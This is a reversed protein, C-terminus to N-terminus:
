YGWGLRGYEARLVDATPSSEGDGSQMRCEQQLVQRMNSKTPVLDCRLACLLLPLSFTLQTFGSPAANPASAMPVRLRWARQERQKGCRLPQLQSNKQGARLHRMLSPLKIGADCSWPPPSPVRRAPCAQLTGYAASTHVIRAQHRCGDHWSNAALLVIRYPMGLWSGCGVFSCAM